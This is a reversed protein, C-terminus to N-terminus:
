FFAKEIDTIDQGSIVALPGIGSAAANVQAEAMSELVELRDFAALWTKGVAYAADHRVVVVPSDPTFAAALCEPQLSAEFPLTKVHRLVIYGEPIIESHLTPAVDGGAVAFAMTNPIADSAIVFNADDASYTRYIAAHSFVGISPAAGGSRYVLRKGGDVIRVAVFSDPTIDARDTNSPSVLFVDDSLRASLAGAWAGFLRQRLARQTIRALLTRLEREADSVDIAGPACRARVDAVHQWLQDVQADSLMAPPAAAALMRARLAAAACGEILELRAYAERLTLAAVVVGHSGLVVCATDPSAAFAESVLRILAASGPLRYPTYAVRGLALVSRALLRSPPPQGCVAHSVLCPAHAHLVACVDPRARYIAAHFGHETSPQLGPVSAHWAGTAADRWVVQERTISGKDTGKPTCWLTGTARDLVSVNGGSTTTLRAAYVRLLCEAVADRPHEYAHRAAHASAPAPPLVAGASAEGHEQEDSRARKKQLM